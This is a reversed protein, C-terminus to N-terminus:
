GHATVDQLSRVLGPVTHEEAVVAVRLGLERAAEATVPGICAAVATARIREFTSPPLISALNRVASASTLVVLDVRPARGLRSPDPSAALSDYADVEDVHAGRARLIDALSRRALSSRPLLIRRGEVTGIADAIADTLYESPMAQVLLGAAEAAEMTAPGVAAIKPGGDARLPVGLSGARAIVQDVGNSSTFVVWDYSTWRRLAEDLPRPDTPPSIRVTPFPLLIAGSDALARALAAVRVETGVLLVTRGELGGEM